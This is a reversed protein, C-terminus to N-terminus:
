FGCQVHVGSYTPLTQGEQYHPCHGARELLCNTNCLDETKDLGQLFILSLLFSGIDDFAWTEWSVELLETLWDHITFFASVAYQTMADM